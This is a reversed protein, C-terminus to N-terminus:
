AGALRKLREIQDRFRAVNAEHAALREREQEVVAAPANEVFRKNDMKAGSQRLLDEERELQKGVRELEAEVDVLGALPILM